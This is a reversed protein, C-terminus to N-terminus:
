QDEIVHAAEPELADDALVARAGILRSSARNPELDLVRRRWADGAELVSIRRRSGSVRRRISAKRRRHLPQSRRASNFLPGSRLTPTPTPSRPRETTRGAIALHLFDVM